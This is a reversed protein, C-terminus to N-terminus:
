MRIMWRRRRASEGHMGEGDALPCARFGERATRSCAISGHMGEDAFPCARFGERTTRSCAISGLTRKEGRVAWGHLGRVVVIVFWSSRNYFFVIDQDDM